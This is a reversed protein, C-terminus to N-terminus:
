NETKDPEAGTGSRNNDPQANKKFIKKYLRKIPYWFIAFVALLASGIIGLIVGITGLGLTPGVYAPDILSILLTLANLTM